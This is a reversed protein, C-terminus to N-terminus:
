RPTHTRNRLDEVLIKNVIDKIRDYKCIRGVYHVRSLDAFYRRRAVQRGIRRSFQDDRSCLAVAMHWEGTQNHRRAFVTVNTYFFRPSFHCGKALDKNDDTWLDFHYFREQHTTSKHSNM